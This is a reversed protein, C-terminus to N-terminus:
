NRSINRTAAICVEGPGVDCLAFGTGFDNLCVEGAPTRGCAKTAFVPLLHIKHLDNEALVIYILWLCVNNYWNSVFYVNSLPSGTYSYRDCAWCWVKSWKSFTSCITAFISWWTIACVDDSKHSPVFGTKTSMENDRTEVVVNQCSNKKMNLINIFLYVGNARQCHFDLM